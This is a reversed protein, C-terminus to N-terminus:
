LIKLFDEGARLNSGELAFLSKVRLLDWSVFHRFLGSEM